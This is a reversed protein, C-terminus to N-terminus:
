SARERKKARKEARQCSERPRTKPRPEVDACERDFPTVGIQAKEEMKKKDQGYETRGVIV